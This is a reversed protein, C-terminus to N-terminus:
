AEQEAQKQRMNLKYETKQQKSAQKGALMAGLFFFRRSLYKIPAEARKARRVQKRQKL